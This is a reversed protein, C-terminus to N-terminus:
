MFLELNVKGSVPISNSLQCSGASASPYLDITLCHVLSFKKVHFIGPSNSLAKELVTGSNEEQESFIQLGKYKTIELESFSQPM